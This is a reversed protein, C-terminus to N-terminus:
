KNRVAIKNFKLTEDFDRMVDLSSRWPAGKPNNLKENMMAGTLQIAELDLDRELHIKKIAKKTARDSQFVLIGLYVLVALSATMIGLAIKQDINLTKM